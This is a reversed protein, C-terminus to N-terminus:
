PSVMTMPFFYEDRIDLHDDSGEEIMSNHEMEFRHRADDFIPSMHVHDHEHQFEYQLWSYHQSLKIAEVSIKIPMSHESAEAPSMEEDENDYFLPKAGNVTANASSRLRRQMATRDAEEEDEDDEEDDMLYDTAEGEVLVELFERRLEFLSRSHYYVSRWGNQRSLKGGVEFAAHKAFTSLTPCLKGLCSIHGNPLLTGSFEHSKKFYLEDGAM